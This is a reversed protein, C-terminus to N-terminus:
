RLADHDVAARASAVAAAVTPYEGSAASVSVAEHSRDFVGDARM